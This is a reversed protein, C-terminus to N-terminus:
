TWHFLKENKVTEFLFKGRGKVFGLSCDSFVGAGVFKEFELLKVTLVVGFSKDIFNDCVGFGILIRKEALLLDVLNEFSNGFM